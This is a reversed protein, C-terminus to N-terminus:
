QLTPTKQTKLLFIFTKTASSFEPKCLLSNNFCWLDKVIKNKSPLRGIYIANYHDTFSVM